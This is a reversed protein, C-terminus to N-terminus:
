VFAYNIVYKHVSLLNGSIREYHHIVLRAVQFEQKSAVLFLGTDDAFLQHCVASGDALTLGQLEQNDLKRKFMLILPQTTLAFLLPALPCGQCVGRGLSFPQIFLGNIHFNSQTSEVFGKVLAIM